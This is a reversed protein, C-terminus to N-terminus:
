AEDPFTVWSVWQILIGAALDQALFGWHKYSVRQVKSPSYFTCHTKSPSWDSGGIHIYWCLIKKLYYSNHLTNYHAGLQVLVTLEMNTTHEAMWNCNLESFPFGAFPMTSLHRNTAPGDDPNHVTTDSRIEYHTCTWLFIMVLSVNLLNFQYKYINSYIISRIELNISKFFFIRFALPQQFLTKGSVFVSRQFFEHTLYCKHFYYTHTSAESQLGAGPSKGCVSVKGGLKNRGKNMGGM